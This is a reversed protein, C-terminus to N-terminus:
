ELRKSNKVTEALIWGTFGNPGKVQCYKWQSGIGKTKLIRVTEGRSIMTVIHSVFVEETSFTEPMDMLAINTDLIIWTEDKLALAFTKDIDSSTISETQPAPLIMTPTEENKKKDTRPAFCLVYIAAIVFLVFIITAPLSTKRKIKTM